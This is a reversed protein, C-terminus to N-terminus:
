VEDISTARCHAKGTASSEILLTKLEFPAFKLAEELNLLTSKITTTTAVGSREQMRLVVGKGSEAQKIALVAVNASSVDLFSQERPADGVHASDVVYEAPTQFEEARRELELMTHDGRGGVLWFTREQRGQDLWANADHIDDPPVTGPSHRAFPASRVLITRMLGDLCDYSYSQQNLLGLTYRGEALEGEVALWDQYPEEQGDCKRQITAGPVKAFISPKTVRTPIELKLIQEREHWDIIFRLEIAEIGAYQTIELLIESSRWTARQRTMRLVPGNEILESSAFTPRGIEDRFADIKHGWTSSNDKLVVAGIPAALLETGDAARFSSIGLDNAAITM